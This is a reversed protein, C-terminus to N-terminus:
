QFNSCPVNFIAFFCQWDDRLRSCPDDGMGKIVLHFLLMRKTPHCTVACHNSIDPLVGLYVEASLPNVSKNQNHELEFTENQCRLCCDQLLKLVWLVQLTKIGLSCSRLKVFLTIQENGSIRCIKLVVDDALVFLCLISLVLDVNKFYEHESNSSVKRNLNFCNKLM